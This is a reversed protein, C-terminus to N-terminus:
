RPPNSTLIVFEPLADSHAFSESSLKVAPGTFAVCDSITFSDTDATAFLVSLIGMRSARLSVFPLGTRDRDVPGVMVATLRFPVLAAPSTTSLLKTMLWVVPLTVNM